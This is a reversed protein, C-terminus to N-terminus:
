TTTTRGELIVKVGKAGTGAADFDVTFRGYKAISSTTTATTAYFVGSALSVPIAFVSSGNYNVDVTTSTSGSTTLTVTIGTLTFTRPAYFTIKSTGSTIQTTEDSAAAMFDYPIINAAFISYLNTSGSVITSATISDVKTDGTLYVEVDTGALHSGNTIQGSSNLLLSQRGGNHISIIDPGDFMIGTNTDSDAYIQPNTTNFTTVKFVSSETIGSATLNNVIPSDTLSIVPSESTGGTIINTGAIITPTNGSVGQIGQPGQPGENGQIGQPGQPGTAGSLGQYTLGTWSTVGDGIKYRLTDTEVAFEREALIPNVSTWNAAIDGRLQIRTAM